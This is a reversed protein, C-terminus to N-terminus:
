GALRISYATGASRVYACAHQARADVSCIHMCVHDDPLCHLSPAKRACACPMPAYAHRVTGAHKCARTHTRMGARTWASERWGCCMHVCRDPLSACLIRCVRARPCLSRVQLARKGETGVQEAVM